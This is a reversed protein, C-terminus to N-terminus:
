SEEVQKACKRQCRGLDHVFSLELDREPFSRFIIALNDRFWLSLNDQSVTDDCTLSTTRLRRAVSGIRRRM